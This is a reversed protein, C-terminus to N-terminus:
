SVDTYYFGSGFIYGDYLRLYARKSEEGGSEPNTVTYEVWTNGDRRLDDIIERYPRDAQERLVTAEIETQGPYASHVLVRGTVSDLVFPYHPETGVYLGNISDFAGEEELEYLRVAEEVVHRSRDQVPHYYGSGFIYGDHMTLWSRKQNVQETALNTFSIYTWVSNGEQLDTIIREPLENIRDVPASGVVGVWDPSASDTVVKMTSADIVFTYHRNPEASLSRIADFAGEGRLEYLRVAQEVEHKIRSELSYYHGAGFIYGDHLTLWSRKLQQTGTEPNLFIYEVWTGNSNQLEDIIVDYPKDAYDEAIILSRTGVRDLVAGHAVVTETDPDLVFPYQVVPHEALANINAFANEKDSDYMRVTEEVISRASADEPSTISQEVYGIAETADLVSGDTKVVTGALVAAGLVVAAIAVVAVATVVLVTVKPNMRSNNPQVSSFLKVM